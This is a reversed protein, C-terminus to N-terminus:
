DDIAVGRRVSRLAPRFRMKQGGTKSPATVSFRKSAIPALADRRHHMASRCRKAYKCCPRSGSELLRMIKNCNSKLSNYGKLRRRLTKKGTREPGNRDM